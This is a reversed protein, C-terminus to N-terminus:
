GVKTHVQERVTISTSTIFLLLHIVEYVYTLKVPGIHTRGLSQHHKRFSGVGVRSKRRFLACIVALEIETIYIWNRHPYMVKQGQKVMSGKVKLFFM